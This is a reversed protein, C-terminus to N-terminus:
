KSNKEKSNNRDQIPNRLKMEFESSYSTKLDSLSFIRDGINNNEEKKRGTHQMDKNNMWSNDINFVNDFDNDNTKANIEQPLGQNLEQNSFIKKNYNERLTENTLVYVAAKLLKIIIIDDKSLKKNYFEKIKTRYNFKIEQPTAQMSVDLLSYFNIDDM